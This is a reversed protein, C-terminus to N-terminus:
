ISRECHVENISKKAFIEPLLSIKILFEVYALEFSLFDELEHMLASM